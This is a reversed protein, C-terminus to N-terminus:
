DLNMVSASLGGITDTPPWVSRLPHGCPNIKENRNVTWRIDGSAAESPGHRLPAPGTM